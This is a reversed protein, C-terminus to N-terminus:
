MQILDICPWVLFSVFSFFLCFLFFCPARVSDFRLLHRSFLGLALRDLAGSLSALRVFRSSTFRVLHALWPVPLRKLFLRLSSVRSGLDGLSGLYMFGFHLSGLDGLAFSLSRALSGLSVFRFFLLILM